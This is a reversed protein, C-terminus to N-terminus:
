ATAKEEDHWTWGTLDYLTNWVGDYFNWGAGNIGVLWHGDIEYLYAATNAICLAGSMEEDLYPELIALEGYSIKEAKLEDLASEIEARKEADEISDLNDRLEDADGYKIQSHKRFMGALHDDIMWMTGWMPWAYIEANTAEAVKQAWETPISSFERDVFAKVAEDKTM